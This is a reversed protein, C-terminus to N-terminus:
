NRTLPHCFVVHLSVGVYLLQDIYHVTNLKKICNKFDPRRRPVERKKTEINKCWSISVRLRVFNQKYVHIPAKETM